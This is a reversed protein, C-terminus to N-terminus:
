LILFVFMCYVLCKIVTGYTPDDPTLLKVLVRVVINAVSLFTDEIKLM